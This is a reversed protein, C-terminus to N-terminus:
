WTNVSPKFSHKGNLLEQFCQEYRTIMTDAFYKDPIKSKVVRPNLLWQAAANTLADIDMYDVIAGNVGDQILDLLIGLYHTVVPRSCYLAEVAKIAFSETRSPVLLLDSACIWQIVEEHPLTPQLIVDNYSQGFAVLNSYLPGRNDAGIFVYKFSGPYKACLRKVVEMWIDCGKHKSCRGITLMIPKDADLGLLSRAKEKTVIFRDLTEKDIGIDITSCHDNDDRDEYEYRYRSNVGLHIWNLSTRGRNCIKTGHHTFVIPMDKPLHATVHLSYSSEWTHINVVDIGKKKLMHTTRITDIRAIYKRPTRHPGYIWVTSVNNNKFRSAISPVQGDYNHYYFLTVQHGRKSLGTALEQVVIQAGNPILSDIILGIHM